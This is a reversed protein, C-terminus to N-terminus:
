LMKVDMASCIALTFCSVDVQQRLSCVESPKEDDRVDERHQLESPPHQTAQCCCQPRKETIAPAEGGLRATLDDIKTQLRAIEKDRKSVKRIFSQIAKVSREYKQNLSDREQELSRIKSPEIAELHSDEFQTLQHSHEDSEASKHRSLKSVTEDLNGTRRFISYFFVLLKSSVHTLSM